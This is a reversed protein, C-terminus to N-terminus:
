NPFNAIYFLLLFNAIYLTYCTTLFTSFKLNEFNIVILMVAQATAIPFVSYCQVKNNGAELFHSRLVRASYILPLTQLPLWQSWMWSKANNRKM